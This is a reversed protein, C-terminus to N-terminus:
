KNSFHLDFNCHPAVECQESHGDDFPSYVISSFTRLFPFGGTSSTPIYVPVAVISFLVSTGLFVLFLVVMQSLLGVGPCTGLPFWLELLYM